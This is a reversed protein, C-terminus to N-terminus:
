QNYAWILSFKIQSWQSYGEYLGIDFNQRTDVMFGLGWSKPKFSFQWTTYADTTYYFADDQSGSYVAQYQNLQAGVGFGIMFPGIPLTPVMGASFNYSTIEDLIDTDDIVDETLTYAHYNFDMYWNIYNNYRYFGLGLGLQDEVNDTFAVADLEFTTYNLYMGGMAPYKFISQRREKAAQEQRKKEEAAAINKRDRELQAQREREQQQVVSIPTMSINADYEQNEQILIAESYNQYGEATASIRYQGIPLEPFQQIGTWQRVIQNNFDYLTVSASIPQIRFLLSGSILELNVTRNVSEGDIISINGTYPRYGNATVELQYDGPAITIPANPNYSQNGIIVRANSPTVSLNLQGAFQELQFDFVNIAPNNSPNEVVTITQNITKYGIKSIRVFYDGPYLFDQYNDNAKLVNDVEISAQNPTTRITVAQRQLKEMQFSHIVQDNSVEIDRLITKYGPKEIRVQHSGETLRIGKTVDVGQGDVFVNAGDADVLPTVQFVNSILDAEQELPHIEYFLVQRPSNVPVSFRLQRYGPMTATISQRFPPIVLRYEGSNPDSLDAIIEVNSDFQLGTLSSNIIIAADDPYDRFVPITQSPNEIAEIELEQLQARAFDSTIGLGLMVFATLLFSRVYFTRLLATATSHM